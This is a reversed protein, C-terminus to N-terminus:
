TGLLFNLALEKWFVQVNASTKSTSQFPNQNKGSIERYTQWYQKRSTLIFVDVLFCNEPMKEYGKESMSCFICFKQPVSEATNNFSYNERGSSYKTSFVSKELSMSEFKNRSLM